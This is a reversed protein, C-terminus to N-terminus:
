KIRLCQYLTSGASPQMAIVRISGLCLSLQSLTFSFLGKGAVCAALSIRNRLLPLDAAAVAAEAAAVAQPYYSSV